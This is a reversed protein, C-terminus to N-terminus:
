KLTELSTKMNNIKSEIINIIHLARIKEYSMEEITLNNFKDDIVKLEKLLFEISKDSLDESIKKSHDLKQLDEFQLKIQDILKFIYQQKSIIHEISSSELNNSFSDVEQIMSTIDKTM